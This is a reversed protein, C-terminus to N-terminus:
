GPPSKISIRVGHRRAREEVLRLAARVEADLDVTRRREGQIALSHLDGLRRELLAVMDRIPALGDRRPDQRRGNGEHPQEAAAAAAERIATLAARFETEVGLLVQGSAALEAYSELTRRHQEHLQALHAEIAAGAKRVREAEVLPLGAAV